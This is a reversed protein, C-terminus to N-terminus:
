GEETLELGSVERCYELPRDQLEPNRATPNVDKPQQHFFYRGTVRAAPDESVALWAQTRYGQDLDHPAGSGGMRTPVWGPHVANSLVDPWRRAVGFALLV